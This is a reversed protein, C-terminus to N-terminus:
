FNGIVYSSNYQNCYISRNPTLSSDAILHKSKTIQILICKILAKQKILKITFTYQYYPYKKDANFGKHEQYFYIDSM